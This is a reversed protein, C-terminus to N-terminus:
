PSSDGNSAVAPLPCTHDLELVKVVRGIALYKAVCLVLDVIEDDALHERLGDIATADLRDPQAVFRETFELAAREAATFDEHDRWAHVRELLQETV